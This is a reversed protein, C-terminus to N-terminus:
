YSFRRPEADYLGSVAIGVAQFAPMRWTLAINGAGILRFHFPRRGVGSEDRPQVAVQIM